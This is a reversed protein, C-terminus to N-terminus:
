FGLKLLIKSHGKEWSLFCKRVCLISNTMDHFIKLKKETARDVHMLGYTAMSDLFFNPYNQIFNTM